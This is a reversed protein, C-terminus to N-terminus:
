RPHPPPQPGPTLPKAMPHILDGVRRAVGTQRSDIHQDAVAKGCKISRCHFAVPLCWAHRPQLVWVLPHQLRYM